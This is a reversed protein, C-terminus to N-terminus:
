RSYDSAPRALFAARVEEEVAAHTAAVIVALRGFSASDIGVLRSHDLAQPAEVVQIRPLAAVGVEFGLEGHPLVDM